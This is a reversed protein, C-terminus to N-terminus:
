SDNLLINGLIYQQEHAEVEWPLKQYDSYSMKRPDVQYTKHEWVFVGTRSASLKGTHIQSLHVLEHITPYFLDSLSLKSNLVIHNRNKSSFFTEGYTNLGMDKFIVHIKAPLLLKDFLSNCIHSVVAIADVNANTSFTISIM